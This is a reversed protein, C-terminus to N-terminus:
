CYVAQQWKKPSWIIIPDEVGNKRAEEVALALTDGRGVIRTEDESLALWTNRAAGILLQSLPTSNQQAM